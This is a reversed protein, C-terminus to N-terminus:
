RSRQRRRVTGGHGYLPIRRRRQRRIGTRNRAGPVLDPRDRDPAPCRRLDLRRQRRRRRLLDHGPGPGSLQLRRDGRRRPWQVDGAGRRLWRQQHPRSPRRKRERDSIRYAQAHTGAVSVTGAVDLQSYGSGATTGNIAMSLTSGAAFSVNAPRFSLRPAPDGWSWAQASAVSLNGINGSADLTGASDIVSVSSGSSGILTLTGSSTKTLSGDLIGSLTMDGGGAVAVNGIIDGSIAAAISTNSNVLM